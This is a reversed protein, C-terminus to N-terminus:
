VSFAGLSFLELAHLYIEEYLPPNRIPMVPEPLESMPQSFFAMQPEKPIWVRGDHEEFIMHNSGSVLFRAPIGHSRKYAVAIAALSKCDGNGEAFTTEPRLRGYLRLHNEYEYEEDYNLNDNYGSGDELHAILKGLDYDIGIGNNFKAPIEFKSWLLSYWPDSKGLDKLLIIGDIYDYLRYGSFLFEGYTPPNLYLDSVTM